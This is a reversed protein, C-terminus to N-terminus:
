AIVCAQVFQKGFSTLVAKLLLKKPAYHLVASGHLNALGDLDIENSDSFVEDRKYHTIYILGLRELCILTSMLMERDYTTEQIILQSFIVKKWESIVFVGKFSANLGLRTKQALENLFLADDFSLQKIIACYAPYVTKRKDMSSAILKTFMERLYTEDHYYKGVDELAPGVIHAPPEKLNEEPIAKIKKDLEDLFSKLNADRKARLKIVPTFVLNVLDALRESVERVIPTLGEDLCKPVWNIDM